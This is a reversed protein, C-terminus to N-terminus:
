TPVARANQARRPVKTVGDNPAPRPWRDTALDQGVARPGENVAVVKTLLRVFLAQERPTLGRLIAAGIAPVSTAIAKALDEGAATIVLHKTRKDHKSMERRILQKKELLRLAQGVTARDSGILESIRTADIGPYDAVVLLISLQVQTTESGNTAAAFEATSRQHLRRILYGPQVYM